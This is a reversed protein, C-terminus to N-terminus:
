CSSVPRRCVRHPELLVVSAFGELALEPVFCVVDFDEGTRPLDLHDNLLQTDVLVDSAWVWREAVPRLVVLLQELVAEVRRPM